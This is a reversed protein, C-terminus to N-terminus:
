QFRVERQGQSQRFIPVHDPSFWCSSLIVMFLFRKEWPLQLFFHCARFWRHVSFSAGELFIPTLLRLSLRVSLGQIAVRWPLEVRLRNKVKKLGLQNIQQKCSVPGEGALAPTPSLLALSPKVCPSSVERHTLLAPSPKVNLLVWGKLWVKFPPSSKLHRFPDQHSYIKRRRSRMGRRQQLDEREM